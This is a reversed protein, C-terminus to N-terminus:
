AAIRYFENVTVNEGVKAIVEGIVDKVTLSEDKIYPQALLEEVNKPEAAAIHMALDHALAKFPESRVVFDTEASLHLLVGIRENHVYSQVLGAGTARDARKEVKALGKERILKVAADIDGNTEILAKRCDMVGASTIERLKQVTEATVTTKTEM